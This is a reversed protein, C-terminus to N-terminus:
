MLTYISEQTIFSNLNFTIFEVANLRRMNKLLELIM